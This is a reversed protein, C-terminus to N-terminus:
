EYMWEDLGRRRDGYDYTVEHGKPIDMISVFVLRLQGGYKVLHPKCNGNKSHNLWAGTNEEITINQGNANVYGDFYQGHGLSFMTPMKGSNSYTQDRKSAEHCDLVQGLYECIIVGSPIYCDAIAGFGKCQSIFLRQVLQIRSEINQQLFTLICEDMTGADQVPTTRLHRTIKVYYGRKGNSNEKWGHIAAKKKLALLFRRKGMGLSLLIHDTTKSQLFAIYARFLDECSTIQDSTSILLCFQELFPTITRNNKPFLSTNRLCKTRGM